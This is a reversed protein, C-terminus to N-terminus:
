LRPVAPSAAPARRSAQWAQVAGADIALSKAKGAPVLQDDMAAFREGFREEFRDLAKTTSPDCKPTWYAQGEGIATIKTVDTVEFTGHAQVPEEWKIAQSELWAMLHDDYGESRLPQGVTPWTQFAAQM